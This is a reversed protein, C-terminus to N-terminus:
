NRVCDAIIQDILRKGDTGQCYVKKTIHIREATETGDTVENFVNKVNSPLVSLVRRCLDPLYFDASPSILFQLFSWTSNEYSPSCIAEM